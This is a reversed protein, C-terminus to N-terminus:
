IIFSEPEVYDKGFLSKYKTKLAEYYVELNVSDKVATTIDDVFKTVNVEFETSTTEKPLINNIRESDKLKIEERMNYVADIKEKFTRHINVVIINAREAKIKRDPSNLLSVLIGSENINETSM